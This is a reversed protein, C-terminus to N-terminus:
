NTKNRFGLKRTYSLILNASNTKITENNSSLVPNINYLGLNHRIEISFASKSKIPISFGLGTTIGMDFKKLPATNSLTVGLSVESPQWILYGIYPGGNLFFKSKKGFTARILVPLTVYYLNTKLKLDQVTRGYSDTLILDTASGKKESLICTRISFIRKFNFQFFLGGCFGIAPQQYKVVADSGRLYIVGLGGEFGLDTRNTQTFAIKVSLLFVIVILSSQKINM